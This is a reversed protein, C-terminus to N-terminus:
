THNLLYNKFDLPINTNVKLRFLEDIYSAKSLLLSDVLDDVLGLKFWHSTLSDQMGLRHCRDEAQNVDGPTWPRELLVVHKARHLTYGVGGAGYTSLLLDFKGEQFSSVALERQGISQQGTLLVGGLHNKLLQLPKVFCSFVVIANGATALENLLRSVAPLKFEASIKRLATLTVLSESDSNVLGQQMRYRYDEIVLSLRYEFGLRTPKTLAVEHHRRIKKPLGLCSAKVRNLIFPSILRRLESLNSAGKCDWVKRSGNELWHGECFYKEYSRQDYSLPHDMAALLPFLEIPRGNKMPTGTLMWIIRLRPHRSLRLLAKTRKAKLSQAFHAEDVVLVTGTEPLNTPLSSWSLLDIQLNFASAENRWHEHLALPAVVMLRVNIVRVIARAALLATLTKGLGMEDALLARERSLLWSAGIQQHPLPRRGDTLVSDLDAREVLQSHSPLPRLPEQHWDFWQSFEDTSYFRDGLLEKLANAASFPFEWGNGSGKWIGKPSIKQM